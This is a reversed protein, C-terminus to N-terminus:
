AATTPPTRGCRATWSRAAAPPRPPSPAAHGPSTPRRHPMWTCRLGAAAHYRPVAPEGPVPQLRGSKRELGQRCASYPLARPPLAAHPVCTARLGRSRTSRAPAAGGCLVPTHAGRRVLNPSKLDRHAIPPTRSHLYQLSCPPLAPRRSPLAHPLAHRWKANGAQGSRCGQVRAVARAIGQAGAHGKCRGPPNGPAPALDARRSRRAAAACRATRRGPQRARLVRRRPGAARHLHGHAARLAPAAPQVQARLLPCAAATSPTLASRSALVYHFMCCGPRICCGAGEVAECSIPRKMCGRWRPTPHMSPM